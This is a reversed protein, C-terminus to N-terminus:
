MNERTVIDRLSILTPTHCIVQFGYFDRCRVHKVDMWGQDYYLLVRHTIRYLLLAGNSSYIPLYYGFGRVPFRDHVKISFMKTWSEWDGNKKMVWVDIYNLNEKWHLGCICLCGGFVGVSTEKGNIPPMPHSEFKDNDLDLSIISRTAMKMYTDHAWHLAGGLYTSFVLRVASHPVSGVSKWSNTGVKHVEAEVSGDNWQVIRIVKYDNNKPNFGLGSVRFLTVNEHNNLTQPLIIFEGTTPNYIAGHGDDSSEALCVLGNCSNILRTYKDFSVNSYQDDQNSLMVRTKRMPCKLKSSMRINCSACCYSRNCKTECWCYKFDLDRGDEPEAVYYDGDRFLLSTRAQAMHLRFFQPSSILNLWTKCVCKCSIISRVSLKLLIIVFVEKPLDMISLVLQFKNGTDHKQSDYSALRVRKM